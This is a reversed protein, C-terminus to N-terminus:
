NNRPNSEKHRPYSDKVEFWSIQSQTWIHYTPHVVSPNDLSALTIDVEKSEESIFRFILQTGCNSCFEREGKESSAFVKPHGKTYQFQNKQVTLWAVVPAGTSQQCLRCHCYGADVKAEMPVSYRIEKCLCGGTVVAPIDATTTSSSSEKERRKYDYDRFYSLYTMVSLVDPFSVIDEADLIEPIGLNEKAKKIALNANALANDGIFDTPLNM